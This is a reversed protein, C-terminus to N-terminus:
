FIALIGSIIISIATGLLFATYALRLFKYKQGLVRAQHFIERILTECISDVDGFMYEMEQVYEELEMGTYMGFFLLNGNSSSFSPASGIMDKLKPRTVALSLIIVTLCTILQTGIPLIVLRHQQPMRIAFTLLVSIMVANVQVLLHAKRDTQVILQRCNNAAIKLAFYRQDKVDILNGKIEEALENNEAIEVLGRGRVITWDAIVNCIKLPHGTRANASLPNTCSKGHDTL